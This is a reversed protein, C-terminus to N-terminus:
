SLTLSMKKPSLNVHHMTSSQVCVSNWKLTCSIIGRTSSCSTRFHPSSIFIVDLAQHVISVVLVGLSNLEALQENVSPTNTLLLSSILRAVQLRTNGLPVDLHGLTTPMPRYHQQFFVSVMGQAFLALCRLLLIVLLALV